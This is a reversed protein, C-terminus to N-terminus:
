PLVEDSDLMPSWSPRVLEGTDLKAVEDLRRVFLEYSLYECRVPDGGMRSEGLGEERGCSPCEVEGNSM